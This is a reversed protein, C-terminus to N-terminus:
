AGFSRQGGFTRPQQAVVTRKHILASALSKVDLNVEHSWALKRIQDAPVSALHDMAFRRTCKPHNLAAVVTPPSVFLERRQLIKHMIIRHIRRERLVRLINKRGVHVCAVDAIRPDEHGIYRLLHSPEGALYRHVGLPLDNPPNRNRREGPSTEQQAGDRSRRLELLQLEIDQTAGDSRSLKNVLREIRDFYGTEVFFDFRFLELVLAELDARAEAGVEARVADRLRSHVADFFAKGYRDSEGVRIRRCITELVKWPVQNYAVISWLSAMAIHRTALDREADNQTAILLVRLMVGLDQASADVDSSLFAAECLEPKPVIGEELARWAAAFRRDEGSSTVLLHFNRLQTLDQPCRQRGLSALDEVIVLDLLRWARERLRIADPSGKDARALILRLEAPGRSVLNRWGTEVSLEDTDLFSRLVTFLGDNGRPGKAKSIAAERCWLLSSRLLSRRGSFATLLAAISEARAEDAATRLHTLERWFEFETDVLKGLAVALRETLLGPTSRVAKDVWQGTEVLVSYLADLRRSAAGLCEGKSEDLSRLVERILAGDRGVRAEVRHLEDILSGDNTPSRTLTEARADAKESAPELAGRVLRSFEEEDSFMRIVTPVGCSHDRIYEDVELMEDQVEADEYQATGIRHLFLAPPFGLESWTAVAGSCPHGTPTNAATASAPLGCRNWGLVGVFLSDGENLRKAAALGGHLVEVRREKSSENLERVVREFEAREVRLCPEIALVVRVSEADNLKLEDSLRCPPADKASKPRAGPDPRDAEHVPHRAIGGAPSCLAGLQESLLRRVLAQGKDIVEDPDLGAAELMERDEREEDPRDGDASIDNLKELTNMTM